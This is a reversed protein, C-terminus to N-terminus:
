KRGGYKMIQRAVKTVRKGDRQATEFREESSQQWYRQDYGKEEYVVRDGTVAPRTAMRYYRNDLFYIIPQM